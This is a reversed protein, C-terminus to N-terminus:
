IGNAHAQCYGDVAAYGTCTGVSCPEPDTAADELHELLQEAQTLTLEWQTTMRATLSGALRELVEHYAAITDTSPHPRRIMDQLRAFLILDAIHGRTVDRVLQANAAPTLAFTVLHIGDGTVTRDATFPATSTVRDAPDDILTVGPRSPAQPTPEVERGPTRGETAVLQPTSTKASGTSPTQHTRCAIKVGHCAPCDLGRHRTDHCNTLDHDRAARDITTLSM